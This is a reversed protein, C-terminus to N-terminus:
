GAAAERPPQAAGTREIAGADTPEKSRHYDRADIGRALTRGRLQEPLQPRIVNRGARIDGWIYSHESLQGAQELAREFEPVSMRHMKAAIPLDDPDLGGAFTFVHQVESRASTPICRPRQSAGILGLGHARGKKLYNIVPRPTKQPQDLCLDGLEHVIVVLGYAYGTRGIKRDWCMQFLRGVDDLECSDDILHIVPQDWQIESPKYVPNVGPVTFEDKSDWLLRQCRPGTAIHNALESKGSGSRGFIIVRDTFRIGGRAAPEPPTPASTRSSAM